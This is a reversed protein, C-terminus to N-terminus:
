SKGVPEADLKGSLQIKGDAVDVRLKLVAAAAKAFGIPDNAIFLGTVTRNAVSPDVVIRVDSYRAFENAADQLTKNDFALHGFQWALDREIKAASVEAAVIPVDRSALVQTNASVRVPVTRGKSVHNLEVVGEKVLVQIPHSPLMSVTFSTGVARVQMDGAVVIFPRKKNKAVDFLAEGQLLRVERREKTFKVSVNSNTNLTVVSGDALVVEKVQGIGAAYNERQYSQQYEATVFAAAAVSAAMSGAMIARRRTWIPAATSQGLRIEDIASGHVRELRALVAEARGYAGLHRIDAALWAEFEADLEPSLEGLNRKAAWEAAQSDIQQNVSSMKSVSM